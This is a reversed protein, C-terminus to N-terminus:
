KCSFIYCLVVQTGYNRNLLLLFTAHFWSSATVVAMHFDLEVFVGHFCTSATVDAFPMINILQLYKLVGFNGNLLLLFTAHFWSSATVVAM